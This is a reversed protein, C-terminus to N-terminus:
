RAPPAEALLRPWADAWCCRHDFGAFERVTARPQRALYRVALARPVQLDDAGYLHV